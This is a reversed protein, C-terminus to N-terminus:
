VSFDMPNLDPSSHPWIEKSRLSPFAESCFKQVLRATHAPAGDQMFVYPRDGYHNQLWPVIDEELVSKYKHSSIMVGMDIFFLPLKMGDDLVGAWVMVSVPKQRRFVARRALPISSRDKGLVSDTQSNHVPQVSFIKEDTSCVPGAMGDRLLKLLVLSRRLRKLRTADSILHLRTKRYVTLKLNNKVIERVTFESMDTEKAMKRTSRNPNRRIKERIIKIAKDTRKTFPRNSRPRDVAQGTEQFWKITTWVVKKVVKDRAILTRIKGNDHGCKHLEIITNRLESSTKM